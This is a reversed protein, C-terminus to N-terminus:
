FTFFFIYVIFVKELVNVKKTDAVDGPLIPITESISGTCLYAYVSAPFVKLGLGLQKISSGLLKGLVVFLKTVSVNGKYSPLFSLNNHCPTFWQEIFRHFTDTFCQRLVGGTDSTPKLDIKLPSNVSFRSSKFYGMMDSYADDVDVELRVTPGDLSKKLYDQLDQLTAFNKRNFIPRSFLIDDMAENLDFENEKLANELVERETEPFMHILAKIKLDNNEIRTSGHSNGGSFEGDNKQTGSINGGSFEGNNKPNGPINGGSFNGNKVHSSEPSESFLFFLSM